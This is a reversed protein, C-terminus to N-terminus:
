YPIRKSYVRHGNGDECILTATADEKVRLRWLQFGEAAVKRNFRQALAIEDLLWYAGAREALFQAGDTYLLARNLGHRYWNESGRFQRLEAQTLTGHESMPHGKKEHNIPHLPQQVGAV